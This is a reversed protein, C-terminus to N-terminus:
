TRGDGPAVLREGVGRGAAIGGLRQALQGVPAGSDGRRQRRRWCQV